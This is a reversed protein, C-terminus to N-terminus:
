ATQLTAAPVRTFTAGVCSMGLTGLMYFFFMHPTSSNSGTKAAAGVKLLVPLGVWLMLLGLCQSPHPYTESQRCKGGTSAAVLVVGM